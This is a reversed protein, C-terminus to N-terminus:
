ALISSHTAMEEKLLLSLALSNINELQPAPSPEKSDRPSCPSSFLWDWFFDVRYEKSPSTSLNFSWYKPWRIHLGLESSFVRISPFISPLLLFPCQPHSLQMADGVWHIHTQALELIYCLFLYGPTSCDMPDCLTPCSKAVSCSCFYYVFKKYTSVWTHTFQLWSTSSLEVTRKKNLLFYSVPHGDPVFLDHFLNNM